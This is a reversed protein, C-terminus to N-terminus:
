RAESRGSRRVHRLGGRGRVILAKPGSALPTGRVRAAEESTYVPEHRLVQFISGHQQLLGEVRNFVVEAM